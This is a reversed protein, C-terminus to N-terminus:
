DGLAEERVLKGILSKGCGTIWVVLVYPVPREKIFSSIKVGRKLFEQMLKAKDVFESIYFFIDFLTIM